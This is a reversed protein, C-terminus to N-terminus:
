RLRQKYLDDLAEERTCRWIRRNIRRLGIVVVSEPATMERSCCRGDIM